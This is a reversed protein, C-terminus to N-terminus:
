DAPAARRLFLTTENRNHPLRRVAVVEYCPALRDAAEKLLGRWRGSTFKVTMVAAAGPRLLPALTCLVEASDAGDINMDNVVLDLPGLSEADLAEARCRLHRVNPLAAVTPDLEAPDVAIVEAVTEALVKTWGGPAAGVDLARWSPELAIDFRELAERLKLEARNLPRQGPAYKRKTELTKTLRGAPTHVALFVIDQFVEVSVQLDVDGVLRAEAGTAQEIFTGLLRKLDRSDWEHTGRRKCLITFTQGGGLREAWPLATKLAELSAPDKGVRTEADVPVIRAVCRTHGERLAALSEARGLPSRLRVNGCMPLNVAEAGPLLRRLERRAAGEFGPATTVVFEAPGM